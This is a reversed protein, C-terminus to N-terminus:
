DLKGQLTFSINEAKTLNELPFTVSSFHKSAELQSQFTLLADRTQANGQIQVNKEAINMELNNLDIGDPMNEIITALLESGRPADFGIASVLTLKQNMEQIMQNLKKSQDNQEQLTTIQRLGDIHVKMIWQSSLLITYGLILMVMIGICTKQVQRYATLFRLQKKYTEPVLNLARLYKKM